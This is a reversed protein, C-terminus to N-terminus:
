NQFNITFPQHDTSADSCPSKFFLPPHSDGTFSNMYIHYAHLALIGLSCYIPDVFIGMLSDYLKIFRNPNISVLKPLTCNDQM